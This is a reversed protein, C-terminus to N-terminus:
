FFSNEQWKSNKSVVRQTKEVDDSKMLESDVAGAAIRRQRVLVTSLVEMRHDRRQLEHELEKIKEQLEYIQNNKDGIAQGLIGQVKERFDNASKVPTGILSNIM